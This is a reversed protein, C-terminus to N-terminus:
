TIMLRHESSVDKASIQTEAQAIAADVRKMRQAEEIERSMKKLDANTSEIGLGRKVSELAGELSLHINFLLIYVQCWQQM